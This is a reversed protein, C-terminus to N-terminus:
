VCIVTRYQLFDCSLCCDYMLEECLVYDLLPFLYINLKLVICFSPCDSEIVMFQYVRLVIKYAVIRM